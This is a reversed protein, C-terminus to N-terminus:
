HIEKSKYSNTYSFHNYSDFSQTYIVSYIISYINHKHDVTQDSSQARSKLKATLQLGLYKHFGLIRQLDLKQHGFYKRHGLEELPSRTKTASSNEHALEELHVHSPQVREYVVTYKATRKYIYKHSYIYSKINILNYFGPQEVEM